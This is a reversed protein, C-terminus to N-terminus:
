NFNVKIQKYVSLDSKIVLVGNEIAYELKGGTIDEVSKVTKGNLMVRIAIRDTDIRIPPYVNQSNLMHIVIYNDKKYSTFDVCKPAELKVEYEGVLYDILSTLLQASDPMPDVEIFGASYIVRGRGFKHEFLAPYETYNIPPDSIASSFVINDKVDGIPLTVTALVTGEDNPTVKVINEELMHPYKRTHKGFLKRAQGEETPALYAPKIEFSGKYDVGLVDSLMFNGRNGTSDDYLSTKGSIYATGGNAIYERIAAIEDESIATLNPFIMTKYNKMQDIQKTGILDYDIHSASLINDLKQLNEYLTKKNLASFDSVEEYPLCSMFNYYVGVERVAEEEFDILPIYKEMNRSIVSIDDYFEGNMEGDPDIADIFLFAGKYMLAAYSQNILEDIDKNMTHRELSVCRSTMFEFPLNNTAKYLMRCTVNVGPRDTYFDGSLFESVEFVGETGARLAYKAASASQIIVPIDPDAKKVAEAVKKLYATNADSKFRLYEYTESSNRDLVKPLERGFQKRYKRKCSECHCIPVYIGVMDLWFGDLKYSSVLEYSRDCVYKVFEDNNMCATGFRETDRKTTGDAYVSQWEPHEDVVFTMWTNAYGVVDLGRKRCEKVTEGFLDRDAENHKMGVKTPYFCLGLCNCSYIYACTAGSKKVNEAYKVPDFKELYGERNPIHMDVLNRIQNRKYWPQM